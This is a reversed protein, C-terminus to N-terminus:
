HLEDYEAEVRRMGARSMPLFETHRMSGVHPIQGHNYPHIVNVTRPTSKSQRQKPASFLSVIGATVVGGCVTLLAGGVAWVIPSESQSNQGAAPLAAVEQQNQQQALNWQQQATFSELQLQLQQNQLMLQQNDAELKELEMQMQMQELQLAQNPDAVPQQGYNPPYPLPQQAAQPSEVTPIQPTVPFNPQQSPTVTGKLLILAALGAVSVGGVFAIGESM